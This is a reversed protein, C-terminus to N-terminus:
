QEPIPILVTASDGGKNTIQVQGALVRGEIAGILAVAAVVGPVGLAAQKFLQEVYSIPPSKGLVQGQAAPNARNWYPVGRTTDYYCEGLFTKIASGADQAQSYPDSAVAINKRADL